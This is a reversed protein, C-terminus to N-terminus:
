ASEEFWRWSAASLAGAGLGALNAGFSYPAPNILDVLADRGLFFTAVVWACGFLYAPISVIRGMGYMKVSVDPFFILYAGLVGAVAGASGLAAPEGARGWLVHVAGAVAGAFLFLLLFAVPGIRDEVNDGLVFLFLGGAIPPFVGAHLFPAVLLAAKPVGLFGTGSPLGPLGGPLEPPAGSVQRLVHIVLLVAILGYTALPVTRVAPADDGLPVVVPLPVGGGFRGPPVTAAGLRDEMRKREAGALTEALAAFKEGHERLFRFRAEIAAASARPALLGRCERCQFLPIGTMQFDVPAFSASCRPCKLRSADSWLRAGLATSKGMPGPTTGQGGTGAEARGEEGAGGEGAGEVAVSLRGGTLEKIEGYDFWLSGCTMCRDIERDGSLVRGMAAIKCRPCNM